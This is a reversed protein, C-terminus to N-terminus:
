LFLNYFLQPHLLCLPSHCLFYVQGTKRRNLVYFLPFVIIILFYTTSKLYAYPSPLEVTTLHLTNNIVDQFSSSHM